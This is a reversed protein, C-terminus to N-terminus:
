PRWTRQIIRDLVVLPDVQPRSETESVVEVALALRNRAPSEAYQEGRLHWREQTLADGVGYHWETDDVTQILRLPQADPVRKVGFVRQRNHLPVHGGAPSSINERHEIGFKLVGVRHIELEVHLARQSLVEHQFDAVDANPAHLERQVAPEVQGVADCTLSR